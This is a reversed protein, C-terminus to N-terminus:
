KIWLENLFQGQLISKRHRYYFIQADFMDKPKENKLIKFLLIGLNCWLNYFEYMPMKYKNSIYYRHLVSMFTHYRKPIRYEKSVNHKVMVLRSMICKLREETAKLYYGYSFDLDEAYGYSLLKEDFRIKWKRVLSKRVAFFFGMAWETPTKEGMLSPFRGYCARSVHGIARKKYSAMGLIFSILSPHFNEEGENVGGILAITSDKEFFNNIIEFTDNHVDVDDDLFVVIENEAFSFGYNRAKTLSPEQQYKYVKSILQPYNNLILENEARIEKNLSQDVVIVQQPVLTGEVLYKLTRNLSKPRNMTPIIVTIPLM